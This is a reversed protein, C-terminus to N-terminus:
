AELLATLAADFDPKWGSGVPAPYWGPCQTSVGYPLARDRHGVIRARPIGYKGLLYACLQALGAIQAPPPPTQHVWGALGVSIYYNPYGAHDHWLALNDPVCHLVTGDAQVWYTYQTTPLGKSGTCYRAAALYDHTGTHHVTIGKIQAATRTAWRGPTAPPNPAQPNTPMSAIVDVPTWPLPPPAPPVPPASVIEVRFEVQVQGTQSTRLIVRDGDGVIHETM